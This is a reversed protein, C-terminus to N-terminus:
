ISLSKLYEVIDHRENRIANQIATDIKEHIKGHEILYKVVHLHGNRVASMLSFDNLAHIDAGNEILYKVTELHGEESAWRLSIEDFVHIDAGKSVLYKVVELQGRLSAWRLSDNINYGGVKEILHRVIELHGLQSSNCPIEDDFLHPNAGKNLAFILLSLDNAKAARISLDDYGKNKNNNLIYHQKRFDGESYEFGFDHKMKKVYYVVESFFSKWSKWRKMKFNEINPYKMLRRRLFADDCVSNWMRKNVSCTKLLEYDEVYRLVERDTDKIGTFM